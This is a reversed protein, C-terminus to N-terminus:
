RFSETAAGRLSVHLVFGSSPRKDLEINWLTDTLKSLFREDHSVLLLGGGYERLASELCEISPLDMHNTPEDMVVLVPQDTMRLALMLKRIEGPSPVLSELLQHPDSGLHNVWRMVEGLKRSALVKTNELVDAAEKATIEQPIYVMQNMPLDIHAMIHRILTSKGAGNPGVVAIRDMPLMLLDPFQLLRNEGLALEGSEIRFLANRHSRQGSLRIGTKRQKRIRFSAEKSQAQRVRGELQRINKGAGGDTAKALNAKGKADHDKRDIGRKSRAKDAKQQHTRRTAFEREMRKRDQSAKTKQEIAYQNEQELSARAQTYGGSRLIAHPPEIFLCHGCLWDLLDRNHSVLLGIGRHTRLTNFVLSRAKSDLHNTPEDIALLNPRMWLCAGIQARKREGHSLTQWRDLFDDEIELSGRIRYADGESSALLTSLEPLPNDTRQPCYVADGPRHIRGSEPDLLKSALQLLTTKGAGNEGIVGTWGESVGFNISDLLCVPSGPYSFSVNQFVLSAM